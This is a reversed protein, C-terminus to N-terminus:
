NVCFKFKKDTSNGPDGTRSVVRGPPSTSMLLIRGIFFNLKKSLSCDDKLGHGGDKDTEKM